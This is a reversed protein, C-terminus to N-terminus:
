SLFVSARKIVHSFTKFYDIGPRQNYSKAVLRTKYCEIKGDSLHKIYFM